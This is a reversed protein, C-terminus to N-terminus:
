RDPKQMTDAPRAPNAPYAFKMLQVTDDQLIPERALCDYETEPPM